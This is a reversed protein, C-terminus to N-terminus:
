LNQARKIQGAEDLCLAVWDSGKACSSSTASTTMNVSLSWAPIEIDVLIIVQHTTQTADVAILKYLILTADFLVVTVSNFFSVTTSKLNTFIRQSNKLTAWLCKVYTILMTIFTLCLDISLKRWHKVPLCIANPSHEPCRGSAIPGFVRLLGSHIVQALVSNVM